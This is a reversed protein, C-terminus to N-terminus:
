KKMLFSVQAAYAPQSVQPQAGPPYMQSYGNSYQQQPSFMGAPSHYMGPHFAGWSSQAPQPEAGWTPYRSDPRMFAPSPQSPDPAQEEGGSFFPLMGGMSVAGRREMKDGRAPQM